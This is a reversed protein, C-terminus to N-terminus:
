EAPPPRPATAARRTCGRAAACARSRLPTWRPPTRPAAAARPAHSPKGRRSSSSPRAARPPQLHHVQRQAHMSPRTICSSTATAASFATECAVASVATKRADAAKPHDTCQLLMQRLPTQLAPLGLCRAGALGRDRPRLLLVGSLLRELGTVLDQADAARGGGTDKKERDKRACTSKVTEGAPATRFSRARM